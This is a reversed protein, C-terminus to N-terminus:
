YDYVFEVDDSAHGCNLCRFTIDKPGEGTRIMELNDSGCCICVPITVIESWDIEHSYDMM